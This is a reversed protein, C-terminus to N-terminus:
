LYFSGRPIISGGKVLTGNSHGFLLSGEQMTNRERERERETERERERVRERERERETLIAAERQPDVVSSRYRRVGPFFGM